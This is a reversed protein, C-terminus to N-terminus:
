VVSKRDGRILRIAVTTILAFVVMTYASILGYAAALFVYWYVVGIHYVASMVLAGIILTTLGGLILLANLLRTSADRRQRLGLWLYAAPLLLM